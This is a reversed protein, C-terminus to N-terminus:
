IILKQQQCIKFTGEEEYTWVVCVCRQRSVARASGLCCVGCFSWTFWLCRRKLSTLWLVVAGRKCINIVLQQAKLSASNDRVSTSTIDQCCPSHLTSALRGMQCM